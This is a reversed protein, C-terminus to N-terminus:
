DQSIGKCERVHANCLGYMHLSGGVVGVGGFSPLIYHIQETKKEPDPYITSTDESGDVSDIVYKPPHIDVVVTFLLCNWPNQGM